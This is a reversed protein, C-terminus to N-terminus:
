NNDLLKKVEYLPVAASSFVSERSGAFMVGVVSGFLDVMPSGSAGGAGYTTIRSAEARFVCPTMSDTLIDLVTKPGFSVPIIPEEYCDTRGLKSGMVVSIEKSGIYEGMFLSLPWGHVHSVIGVTDGIKLSGSINLSRTDDPIGEILCLDHSSNTIRVEQLYPMLKGEVYVPLKSYSIAVDLNDTIQIKKGIDCIHRNTMIYNKGSKGKVMFGTGQKGDLQILVTRNGVYERILRKHAFPAFASLSV